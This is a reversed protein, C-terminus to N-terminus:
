PVAEARHCDCNPVLAKSFAVIMLLTNRLGRGEKAYPEEWDIRYCLRRRAMYVHPGTLGAPRSPCPLMLM